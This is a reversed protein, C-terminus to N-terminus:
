SIIRQIRFPNLLLRLDTSLAEKHNWYACDSKRRNRLYAVCSEIAQAYCHNNFFITVRGPNCCLVQTMDAENPAHAQKELCSWINDPLNGSHQGFLNMLQVLMRGVLLNNFFLQILLFDPFCHALTNGSRFITLTARQRGALSLPTNELLCSMPNSQFLNPKGIYRPLM